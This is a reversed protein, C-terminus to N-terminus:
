FHFTKFKCHSSNAITTHIPNSQKDLFQCTGTLVFFIFFDRLSQAIFLTQQNICITKRKMSSLFPFDIKRQLVNHSAIYFISSTKSFNSSKNRITASSVKNLNNINIAAYRSLDTFIKSLGNQDGLVPIPLREQVAGRNSVQLKDRVPGFFVCINLLSFENCSM